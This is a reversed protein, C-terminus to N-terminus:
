FAVVVSYGQKYGRCSLVLHGDAKLFGGRISLVYNSLHHIPWQNLRYDMSRFLHNWLVTEEGVQTEM